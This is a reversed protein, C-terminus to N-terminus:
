EREPLSHVGLIIDKLFGSEGERLDLVQYKEKKVAKCFRGDSSVFLLHYKKGYYEERLTGLGSLLATLHWADGFEFHYKKAMKSLRIPTFYDTLPLLRIIPSTVPSIKGQFTEIARHVEPYHDKQLSGIFKKCANNYARPSLFGKRKKRALVSLVEGVCVISSYIEKGATWLRRAITTAPENEKVFLKVLACSDFFLLPKTLPISSVREGKSFTDMFTDM